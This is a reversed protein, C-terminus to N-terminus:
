LLRRRFLGLFFLSDVERNAVLPGIDSVIRVFTHLTATAHLFTHQVTWQDVSVRARRDTYVTGEEAGEYLANSGWKTGGRVERGCVRTNIAKSQVRGQDKMWSNSVHNCHTSFHTLPSPVLSSSMEFSSFRSRRSYKAWHLIHMDQDYSTYHLGM